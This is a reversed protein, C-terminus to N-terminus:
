NSLVSLSPPLPGSGITEHDTSANPGSVSLPNWLDGDNDTYGYILNTGATSLKEGPTLRWIPGSNMAMIRGTKPNFGINFEGNNVEASSNAPPVYIQYRPANPATPDAGGFGPFGGGGDGSLLEM